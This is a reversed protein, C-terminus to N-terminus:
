ILFLWHQLIPFKFWSFNCLDYDPFLHIRAILHYSLFPFGKAYKVYLYDEEVVQHVFINLICNLFVSLVLFLALIRALYLSKSKLADFM